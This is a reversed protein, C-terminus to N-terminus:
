KGAGIKLGCNKIQALGSLMAARVGAATKAECFVSVTSAGTEADLYSVPTCGSIGGLMEAVADEAEPTTAVSVRRLPRSNM